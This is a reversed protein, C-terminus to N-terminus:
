NIPNWQGGGKTQGMSRHADADFKLESALLKIYRLSKSRDGRESRVLQGKEM